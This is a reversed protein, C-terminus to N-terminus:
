YLDNTYNLHDSGDYTNKNELYLRSFLKGIIFIKMAKLQQMNQINFALIPKSTKLSTELVNKFSKPM